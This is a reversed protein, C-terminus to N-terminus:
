GNDEEESESLPSFLQRLDKLDQGKLLGNESLLDRLDINERLLIRNVERYIDKERQLKTVMKRQDAVVDSWESEDLKLQKLISEDSLELVQQM